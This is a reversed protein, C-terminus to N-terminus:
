SIACVAKNHLTPLPLLIYTAYFGHENEMIGMVEELKKDETFYLREFLPRQAEWDQASQPCHANGTVPPPLMFSNNVTQEM